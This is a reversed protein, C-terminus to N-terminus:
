NLRINASSKSKKDNRFRQKKETKESGKKVRSKLRYNLNPCDPRWQFRYLHVAQINRNRVSDKQQRRPRSQSSSLVADNTTLGTFNLKSESNQKRISNKKHKRLPMLVHNSEVLNVIRYESRCHINQSHKVTQM